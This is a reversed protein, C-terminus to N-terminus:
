AERKFYIKYYNLGQKDDVGREIYDAKGHVQLTFNKDLKIKSSLLKKADKVAQDSIDFEYQIKVENNLQYDEKYSDFLDRVEPTFGLEDCFGDIFFLEKDKFYRSAKNLYEIKKTISVVYMDPLTEKIFRSAFTIFNLTVDYITEKLKVNLFENRWILSVESKGKSKPEYTSVLYYNDIPSHNIILAGYDINTTVEEIALEYSSQEAIAKIFVGKSESKFIGIGEFIEHGIMIGTVHAIYVEGAKIKPHVSSEYLQAVFKKGVVHFAEHNHLIEKSTAYAENLDLDTEHSFEYLRPSKFGGFFRSGLLARQETDTIKFPKDTTFYNEDAFRNGVHHISLSEIYADSLDLTNMNFFSAGLIAKL